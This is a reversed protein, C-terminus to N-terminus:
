TEQGCASETSRLRHTRPSTRTTSSTGSITACGSGTAASSSSASRTSRATPLPSSLPVEGPRLHGRRPALRRPDGTTSRRLQRRVLRDRLDPVRLRRGLAAGHGGALRSGPRGSGSGRHRARAGHSLTQRAALATADARGAPTATRAGSRRRRGSCQRHPDRKRRSARWARRDADTSPRRHLRARRTPERSPQRQRPSSPSSAGSRSRPRRAPHRRSTRGSRECDSCRPPRSTRAPRASARVRLPRRASRPRPSRAESCRSGSWRRSPSHPRRRVRKRRSRRM